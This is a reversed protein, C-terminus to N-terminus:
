KESVARKSFKMSIDVSGAPIVTNQNRLSEAIEPVVAASDATISSRM